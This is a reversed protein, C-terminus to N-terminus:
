RSRWMLADGDVNLLNVTEESGVGDSACSCFGNECRYYWEIFRWRTGQIRFRNKATWEHHQISIRLHNLPESYISAPGEEAKTQKGAIFMYGLTAVSGVVVAIAFPKSNARSSTSM